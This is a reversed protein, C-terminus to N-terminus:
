SPRSLVFAGAGLIIVGAITPVIWGNSRWLVVGFGAGMGVVALLKARVPIAGREHWDRLLPGFRRSAYLRERLEPSGRAFAWVAVLLFPVTPLLPLFVGATALAVCALGLGRFFLVEARGLPRKPQDLPPENPVM